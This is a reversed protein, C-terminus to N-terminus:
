TYLDIANPVIMDGGGMELCKEDDWVPARHGNFVLEEDARGAGPLWWTATQRHIRGRGTWCHPPVM